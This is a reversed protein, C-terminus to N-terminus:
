IPGGSVRVFVLLESNHVIDYDELTAISKSDYHLTTGGYSMYITEVSIKLRESVQSFLNCITSGEKITITIRRRGFM